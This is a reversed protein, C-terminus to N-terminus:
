KFYCTLADDVLMFVTPITPLPMKVEEAHQKYQSFPILDNVRRTACLVMRTSM